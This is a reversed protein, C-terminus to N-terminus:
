TGNKLAPGSALINILENDIDQETVNRLKKLVKRAAEVDKINLILHKPSEPVFVLLIAQLVGTVGNLALLLPWLEENGLCHEYGLSLSILVGAAFALPGATGM